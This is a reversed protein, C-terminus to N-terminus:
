RQIVVKIIKQNGIGKVMALYVGSGAKDGSINKGDWLAQGMNNAILETVWEGTLTYIGVKAEAPMKSFTIVRHLPHSPRFPNPYVMVSGVSGGPAAQMVQFSSFHNTRALVQSAVLFRQTPLSVWQGSIEDYRAWHITTPEHTAAVSSHYAFSLTVPKKPQQDDGATIEVGMGMPTLDLGSSEGLPFDTKLSMRVSVPEQFTRTPLNLHFVGFRTSLTLTTVEEPHILLEVITQNM